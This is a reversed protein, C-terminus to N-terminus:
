GAALLVATALAVSLPISLNDDLRTTYLEVVAGVLGAGAAVLWPSAVQPHLLVLYAASALLASGFFAASGVFSKDRYLKTRGFRRGFTSAIPDAVALVVCGLEVAVKPCTIAAILLGVGFYTASNIRSYEHPRAIVKIIASRMLVDNFAPSRRRAIELGVFIAALSGMVMIAQPRTLLFHYVLAAFLGSGAHFVSRALNTRSIRPAAAAPVPQPLADVLKRMQEYSAALKAYLARWQAPDVKERLAEQIEELAAAAQHLAADLRAARSGEGEEAVKAALQDRLRQLQRELEEAPERARERLRAWSARAPDLELIFASLGQMTQTVAVM